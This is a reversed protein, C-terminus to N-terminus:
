CHGFRLVSWRESYFKVNHAYKLSYGLCFCVGVWCQSYSADINLM